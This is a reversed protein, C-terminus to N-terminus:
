LVFIDYIKTIYKNYTNPKSSWVVLEKRPVLYIYTTTEM